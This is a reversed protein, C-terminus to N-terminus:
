AIIIKILVLIPVIELCCLYYFLYLKSSEPNTLILQIGRLLRVVFLISIYFAIIYVMTREAFPSYFLLLTLPLTTLAGLFYFLYNSYLYMKMCNYVEFLNGLLIIAENKLLILLSIGAFIALCVLPTNEYVITGFIQSAKTACLALCAIYIAAMPMLSITRINSERFVRELTRFDFLSRLIDKIKFKQINFYLSMAGALVVVTAFVWDASPESHRMTTTPEKTSLENTVFMSERYQTQLNKYPAFLSDNCLLLYDSTDSEVVTTTDAPQLLYHSIQQISDAQTM